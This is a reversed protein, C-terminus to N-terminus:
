SGLSELLKRGSPNQAPLLIGATQAAHVRGLIAYQRHSTVFRHQAQVGGGHLGPFRISAFQRNRSQAKPSPAPQIRKGSKEATEMDMVM